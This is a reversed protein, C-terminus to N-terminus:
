RNGKHNNKPNSATLPKLVMTIISLFNRTPYVDYGMIAYAVIERESRHTMNVMFELAEIPSRDRDGNKTYYLVNEQGPIDVDISRRRTEAEELLDAYEASPLEFPRMVIEKPQNMELAMM